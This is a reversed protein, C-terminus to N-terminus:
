YFLTFIFHQLNDKAFTSSLECYRMDLIKAAIESEPDYDMVTVSYRNTKKYKLDDAHKVDVKDLHYVIAPYSIKVDEPPSFYVERSGLIAELENQLSVRDM